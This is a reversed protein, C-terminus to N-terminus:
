RSLEGLADAARKLADLQEGAATLDDNGLAIRVATVTTQADDLAKVVQEYLRASGETQPQQSEFSTVATGLGKEADVVMRGAPQSWLQHSRLQEVVLRTTNVESVAERASQAAADRIKQDPSACGALVLVLLLGGASWRRM